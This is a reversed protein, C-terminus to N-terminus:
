SPARKRMAHYDRYVTDAFKDANARYLRWLPFLAVFCAIACSLLWPCPITSDRTRAASWGLAFIIVFMSVTVSVRGWRSRLQPKDKLVAVLPAVFPLAIWLATRGLGAFLLAADVISVVWLAITIGIDKTWICWTKTIDDSTKSHQRAFARFVSPFALPVVLIVAFLAALYSWWTWEIPPARYSGIAWGLLFPIALGISLFLGRALAYLGQFQEAYAAMKNAVLAARCAMFADVRCRDTEKDDTHDVSLSFDELILAKLEKKFNKSFTEDEEDLLRTSPYRHKKKTADWIESSIVDTGISQLLIGTTYSAAFAAAALTWGASAGGLGMTWGFPLGFLAILVFGPIVYGYLDYFNFRDVM